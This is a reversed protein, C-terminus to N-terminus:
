SVMGPELIEGTKDNLLSFGLKQARLRLNRLSRDRHQAEYADAGPDQYIIEGKLVRYVLIALKRATATVAKAKGVRYALRRYYAGLATQSRGVTVACLRLLAAARSASRRTRSSIIREGTIKNDPSLTMWSTFHNATDWRSMDTGIESVLCLASYPAISHIQTLDSGTLRHLLPRIDFHPVNGKTRFRTRAAPLPQQPAEGSEALEELFSEIEQDCAQLQTQVGDYPAWTNASCM